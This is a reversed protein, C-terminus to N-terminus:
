EVGQAAKMAGQPIRALVSDILPEIDIEDALSYCKPCFIGSDESGDTQFFESSAIFGCEERECQAPYYKEPRILTLKTLQLARVSDLVWPNADASPLPMWMYGTPDILVFWGEISQFGCEGTDDEVIGWRCTYYDGEPSVLIVTDGNFPTKSIDVEAPIPLWTWAAALGRAYADRFVEKFKSEWLPLIDGNMVDDDIQRWEKKLGRRDSIDSSLWEFLDKAAQEATLESM